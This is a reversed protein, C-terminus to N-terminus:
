ATVPTSARLAAVCRGIIVVARDIEDATTHKSLSFRLSGRAVREPVGMAALVPSPELSGSSCASGASAYVGRESLMMVIPENELRPFGINSTNWIRRGPDTNGNVVADPVAEIVRQELRDRLRVMHEINSPTGLWEMAEKAAVGLGLIGPVNETGGRRGLEQSGLQQPHVKWARPRVWLAGIGKPGHFKHASFTLLDICAGLDAQEDTPNNIGGEQRATGVDVPMKGVWPTGDCHFPVGRERCIKSIPGIPQVVGTESNSWMVSVLAVDEDIMEEVADMRVAGGRDVPAWRAEICGQQELDQVLQRVASHEIASTVVVRRETNALIGRFALCISETGGSAFVVEKPRAGVLAAVDKRALEIANKVEQGARHISSPNAWLRSLADSMARIVAPSPLTTANHDLHIM